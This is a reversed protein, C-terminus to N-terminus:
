IIDFFNVWFHFTQHCFHVPLTSSFRQVNELRMVKNSFPMFTLVCRCTFWQQLCPIKTFNTHSLLSKSRCPPPQYILWWLTLNTSANNPDFKALKPPPLRTSARKIGITTEGGCSCYAAPRLCCFWIMSGFTQLTRGPCMDTECDMKLSVGHPPKQCQLVLVQLKSVSRCSDNWCRVVPNMCFCFPSMLRDCPHFWIWDVRSRASALSILLRRYLTRSIEEM